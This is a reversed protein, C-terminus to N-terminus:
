DRYGMRTPIEAPTVKLSKVHVRKDWSELQVVSIGGIGGHM